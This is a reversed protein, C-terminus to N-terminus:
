NNIKSYRKKFSQKCDISCFENDKTVLFGNSKAMKKIVKQNPLNNIVQVESGCEDCFLYNETRIGM